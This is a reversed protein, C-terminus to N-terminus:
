IKKAFFNMSLQACEEAMNYLVFMRGGELIKIESSPPLKERLLPLTSEEMAPVFHSGFLLLVPCRIESLRGRYDVSGAANILDRVAHARAKSMEEVFWKGYTVDGGFRYPMEELQYSKVGATDIARVWKQSHTWFYPPASISLKHVREPHNMALEMGTWAGAYEGVFYVRPIELHDLLAVADNVFATISWPFDPGPDSSKGFGRADIRLVRYKRALLPVWRYWFRGHRGCGHHLLVTEPKLWPDTFDDIEYYLTVDPLKLEPM